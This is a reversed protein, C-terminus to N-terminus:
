DHAALMGAHRTHALAATSKRGRPLGADPAAAILVNRRYVDDRFHVQGEADSWATFYLLYIPVPRPLDIRRTEGNDILQQLKQASWQQTDSTQLLRAALELPKELRICGSSFTRVPRQFLHRDPTDHLYIRWSNPFMFKIRGLSNHDGPEQVLKFDFSAPTIHRWDIARPDLETANRQWGSFLRIHRRELAGADDQLRPLFEDRAIRAPITWRPNLELYEIANAFSPTARYPKGIITRMHLVPKGDEFLSLRYGPINVLVYRQGLERPLWRWREMNQQLQAIRQRLSVNLARRTAPGVIGDAVLGHLSQFRRVAAQVTDDLEESGNDAAAPLLGERHLRTRLVAVAAHRMGPRLSPSAPLRPWEGQAAMARYGQLAQQLRRYGAHPPPLTALFRNLKDSAWAQQLLAVPDVPEPQIYWDPDAKRPYQYGNRVETAYRFFADSLLLELRARSRPRRARWLYRLAEIHYERPDLGHEYAHEIARFLVGARPHLAQPRSWLPKNNRQAYFRRLADWNLDRAWQPYGGRLHKDLEFEFGSGPLGLAALAPQCCLLLVLLLKMRLSKSPTGLPSSAQANERAPIM